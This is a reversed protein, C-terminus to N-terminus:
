YGRSNVKMSSSRGGGSDSKWPQGTHNVQTIGGGQAPNKFKGGHGDGSQANDTDNFRGGGAGSDNALGGKNRAGKSNGFGDLSGRDYDMNDDGAM